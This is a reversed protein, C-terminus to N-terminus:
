RFEAGRLANEVSGLAAGRTTRVTADGRHLRNTLEANAPEVDFRRLCKAMLEARSSVGLLRYIALNPRTDPIALRIVNSTRGPGAYLRIPHGDTDIRADIGGLRPIGRQGERARRSRAATLQVRREEGDVREKAEHGREHRVSQAGPGQAERADSNAIRGDEPSSRREDAAAGDCVAQADPLM